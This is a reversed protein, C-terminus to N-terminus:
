AMDELREQILVEFTDLNLACLRGLDNDSFKGRSAGGFVCGNDIPLVLAKSKAKSVIDEISNPTHGHVIRKPQDLMALIQLDSLRPPFQRIWLMAEWEEFPEEEGFDFGAHVLYFGETDIYYPLGKIFDLYRLNMEGMENLLDPTKKFKTMVVKLREKDHMEYDNLLTQEHNGRLAYVPYGKAQLAMIFDMVGASAPGRDIYDGLFFLQDEPQLKIHQWVLAELTQLCGHVDSIAFRRGYPPAPIKLFKPDEM